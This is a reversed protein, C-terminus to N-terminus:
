RKRSLVYQTRVDQWQRSTAVFYRLIGRVQPYVTFPYIRNPDSNDVGYVGVRHTGLRDAHAMVWAEQESLALGLPEQFAPVVLGYDHVHKYKKRLGILHEGKETASADCRLSFMVFFGRSGVEGYLEAEPHEEVTYAYEQLLSAFAKKLYALAEVESDFDARNRVPLVHRTKEAIGTPIPRGRQGRDVEGELYCVDRIVRGERLLEVALLVKVSRATDRKELIQLDKVLWDGPYPLEVSIKRARLARNVDEVTTGRDPDAM